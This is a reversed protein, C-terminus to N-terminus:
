RSNFREAMGSLQGANEWKQQQNWPLASEQENGSSILPPKEKTACSAFAAAVCILLAFKAARLVSVNRTAALM